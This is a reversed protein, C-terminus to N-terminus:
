HPRPRYRILGARQFTNAVLSVRSRQVGLMQALFEQTLPLMDGGRLDRARLLWRSLRSEVNHAANCAASQLAQGLLAQEHRILTTRFSVSQEAARRLQAVDLISAAGPLQVIAENLAIGGDLAASAEFVSDRGVMAAEVTEGEALRTVLSIIGSHPFYIHALPEGARVLVTQHMLELPRLLRRILVFEASPLSALLQNSLRPVSDL